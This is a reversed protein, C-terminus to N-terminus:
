HLIEFSEEGPVTAVWGVEVSTVRAGSPGRRCWAVLAELDPREGQAELVVSGDPQNMVWGSLGLKVAQGRANMRYAVGQVRGHINARIRVM